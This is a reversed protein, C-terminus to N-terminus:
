IEYYLINLSASSAAQIFKLAFLNGTYSISTNVPIFMGVSGTPDVGDDRFVVDKGRAQIVAYNAGAPVTLGTASSLSTIQQFGKPNAREYISGRVAM